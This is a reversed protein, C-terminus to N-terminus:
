EEPPWTSPAPSAEGLEGFLGVLLAVFVAMVALGVIGSAAVQGVAEGGPSVTWLTEIADFVDGAKVVVWGVLLLVFATVYWSQGIATRLTM